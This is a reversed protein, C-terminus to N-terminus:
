AICNHIILHVIDLYIKCVVVLCMTVWRDWFCPYNFFNM